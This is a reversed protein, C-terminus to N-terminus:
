MQFGHGVFPLWYSPLWVTRENKGAIQESQRGSLLRTAVVIFLPSLLITILLSAPAALISTWITSVLGPSTLTANSIPAYFDDTDM